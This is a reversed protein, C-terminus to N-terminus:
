TIMSLFVVKQDQYLTTYSDGYDLNELMTIMMFINRMVM